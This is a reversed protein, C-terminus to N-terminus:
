AYFSRNQWDIKVGPSMTSCITTQRIKKNKLLVTAEKILATLLDESKDKIKGLVRHEPATKKGKSSLFSVHLELKSDFKERSIKKVLEIAEKPQYLSLRNVQDRALLYDGGRRPKKQAKPSKKTLKNKDREEEM